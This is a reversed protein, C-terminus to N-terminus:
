ERIVASQGVRRTGRGVVRETGILALEDDARQHLNIPELLTSRVWVLALHQPEVLIRPLRVDDYKLPKKRPAIGVRM